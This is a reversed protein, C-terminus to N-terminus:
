CIWFDIVLRSIDPMTKHCESLMVKFQGGNNIVLVYLAIRRKPVCRKRFSVNFDMVIIITKQTSSSKM